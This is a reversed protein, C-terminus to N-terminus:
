YNRYAKEELYQDVLTQIGNMDSESAFIEPFNTTVNKKTYYKDIFSTFSFDKNISTNNCFSYDQGVASEGTIACYTMLTTIYGSLVSPHFGDGVVFTNKNYIQTAGPVRVKGNMIDVVVAGWDVIIVGKNELDKLYYRWNCNDMHTTHQALYVFKTDPNAEKFFNMIQDITALFNPLDSRNGDQMVVYDYNRDVLYEEHHVGNCSKDSDCTNFLATLYHGGFTWNTVSVDAGNAKCLQYFYGTDDSRPEQTLISVGKGMVSRGYYTHSNGLFIVKKGDLINVKEEEDDDTEIDDQPESDTDTDTNTSDSDLVSEPQDPKIEDKEDPENEEGDDETETDNQPKQPENEPEIDNQPNQPENEPETDTPSFDTFYEPLATDIDNTQGNSCGTLTSVSLAIVMFLVAIKKM